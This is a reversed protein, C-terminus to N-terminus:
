YEEELFLSWSAGTVGEARLVVLNGTVMGRFARQGLATGVSRHGYTRRARHSAQGTSRLCTWAEM